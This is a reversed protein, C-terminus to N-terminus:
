SRLARSLTQGIESGGGQSSRRSGACARGSYSPPPEEEYKQEPEGRSAYKQEQKAEEVPLIELKLPAKEIFAKAEDEPGTAVIEFRNGNEDTSGGVARLLEVPEGFELRENKPM